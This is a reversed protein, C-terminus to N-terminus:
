IVPNNILSLIAKSLTAKERLPLELYCSKLFYKQKITVKDFIFTRLQDDMLAIDVIHAWKMDDSIFQHDAQMVMKEIYHFKLPISIEEKDMVVSLCFTKQNLLANNFGLWNKRWLYNQIKRQVWSLKTHAINRAFQMTMMCSAPMHLSVASHLQLGRYNLLQSKHNLLWQWEDAFYNKAFFCLINMQYNCDAAVDQMDDYLQMSRVMSSWSSFQKQFQLQKKDLLVARLTLLVQIIDDDKTKQYQLLDSLSFNENFANIDVKYTDFCKNCAKCILQAAEVGKETNLKNLHLNMESLLFQLHEYFAKYTIEYKPNIEELISQPLVNCIDFEYYLEIGKDSKKYRLNYDVAENSLVTKINDKGYSTAIGDIFEDGFLIALCVLNALHSKNQLIQFANQRFLLTDYAFSGKEINNRVQLLENFQLIYNLRKNKRIKQRMYLGVPFSLLMSGSFKMFRMLEDSFKYSFSNDHKINDALLNLMAEHEDNFSEHLNQSGLPVSTNLSNAGTLKM